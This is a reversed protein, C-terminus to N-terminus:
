PVGVVRPGIERVMLRFKVISVSGGVADHEFGVRFWKAYGAPLDIRVLYVEPDESGPYFQVYEPPAPDGYGWLTVDKRFFYNANANKFFLVRLPGQAHGEPSRELLMDFRVFLNDTIGDGFWKSYWRMKIARGNDDYNENGNGDYRLRFVRGRGDGCWVVERRNEEVKWAVRLDKEQDYSEVHWAGTRMDLVLHRGAIGAAPTSILWRARPRDPQNDLVGHVNDVYNQQDNVIQRYLRRIKPDSVNISQQGNFKVVGDKDWWFAHNEDELISFHNDSGHRAPLPQPAYGLIPHPSLQFNPGNRKTIFVKGFMSSFVGSAPHGDDRRLHQANSTPWETPNGKPTWYVTAPSSANGTGVFREDHIAFYRIAPIPDRDFSVESQLNGDAYSIHLPPALATTLATTALNFGAPVNAQKEFFWAGAGDAFTRYINVRDFYSKWDPIPNITVLFYSQGGAGTTATVTNSVASPNTEEGTTSSSLTIVITYKGNSLAGPDTGPTIITPAPISGKFSWDRITQPVTSGDYRMQKDGDAYYVIDSYQGICGDNRGGGIIDASTGAAVESVAGVWKGTPLLKFLKDGFVTLVQQSGDRRRYHWGAFCMGWGVQDGVQQYGRRNAITGRDFDVNEAVTAENNEVNAITDTDNLGGVPNSVELPVLNGELPAPM